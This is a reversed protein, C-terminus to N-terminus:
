PKRSDDEKKAELWADAWGREYGFFEGALFALMLLLAVLIWIM